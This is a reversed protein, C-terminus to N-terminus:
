PTRRGSPTYDLARNAIDDDIRVMRAKTLPGTDTCDQKGVKRLASASTPATGGAEM